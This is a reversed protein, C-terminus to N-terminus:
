RALREEKHWTVYRRLGEEIDITPRYGLEAEALSCDSFTQWVDGAQRPRHDVQAEVGVASAILEILRDLRVPRGAGLNYIRYGRSRDLAAVIGDAIDHVHTYDRSSAGDGFMPVPQGHFLLDTFRSIAMEPRQRPGYVTFLRLCCLDKLAGQAGYIHHFARCMMEGARKSAAYPSEPQLVPDEECFPTKANGGYVSSSSAFVFREIGREASAQLLNTTGTLNVRSYLAPQELSPRVGARAALHVLADPPAVEFAREVDGPACIDGLVHTFEGRESLLDLNARKLAPDYYDNLEDLGVVRDGRGLLRECVHSGIFGAAGTVLINAM